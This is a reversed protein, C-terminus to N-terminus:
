EGGARGYSSAGAALLAKAPGLLAEFDARPLALLECRTSARVTAARPEGRLLSLEGFYGGAGIKGVVAMTSTSKNEDDSGSSLSPAPPSPALM